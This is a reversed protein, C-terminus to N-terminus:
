QAAGTACGPQTPALLCDMVLNPDAKRKAAFREHAVRLDLNGLYGVQVLLFNATIKLQDADRLVDGQSNGDTYRIHVDM